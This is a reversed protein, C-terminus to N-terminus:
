EGIQATASKKSIKKIDAAGQKTVSIEPDGQLIVKGAGSITGLLQETAWIYAIFAGSADISSIKTNLSFADYRTAGYLQIYQETASGSLTITGAGHSQIDLQKVKVTLEIAANGRCNVDLSDVELTNHSIIHAVGRASISAIDPVFLYYEAPKVLFETNKPSKRTVKLTSNTITFELYPMLAKDADIRLTPKGEEQIIYLTGDAHMDVYLIPELAYSRTDSIGSSEVKLSHIPARYERIILLAGLSLGSIILGILLVIRATM